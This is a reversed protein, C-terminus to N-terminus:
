PRAVGVEEGRATFPPSQVLVADLLLQAAHYVVIPLIALAAAAPAMTATLGIALDLGVALTKQSGGVAAALSEPRETRGSRAAVWAGVFLLTHMLVVAALLLLLSELPIPEGGATLLRGCRVSGVLVLALLGLQAAGGLHPKVRDLWARLGPSRRLLQGVLIPAVAVLLLRGALAPAAITAESPIMWAVWCPAVVFCSANTVVTIALAVADNGGGRRTWVASSALTSPAVATIMLGVGLGGPLAAALLWALPPAVAANFLVGIAAAVLAGRRRLSTHLDITASMLLVVTAVIPGRPASETVGSLAEHGCAGAVLVLVLSALFWHRRWWAIAPRM